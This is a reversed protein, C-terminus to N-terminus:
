RGRRPRMVTFTLVIGLRVNDFSLRARAAQSYIHVDVESCSGRSGHTYATSMGTPMLDWRAGSGEERQLIALARRDDGDDERLIAPHALSVGEAELEIALASPVNTRISRGLQLTNFATAERVDRLGLVGTLSATAPARVEPTNNLRLLGDYSARLPSVVYEGAAIGDPVHLRVTTGKGDADISDVHVYHVDASGAAFPADVKRLVVADGSEFAHVSDVLTGTASAQTTLDGTTKGTTIGALTVVRADAMEAYIDMTDSTDEGGHLGVRPGFVDLAARDSTYSASGDLVTNGFFGLHRHLDDALFELRLVEGGQHSFTVKRTTANYSVVIQAAADEGAALGAVRLADQLNAAARPVTFQGVPLAASYRRGAVEVTVDDTLTDGVRRYLFQADSVYGFTDGVTVTNLEPMVVRTISQPVLKPAEEPRCYGVTVGAAGFLSQALAADTFSITVPKSACSFHAQRVRVVGAREDIAAEFRAEAPLAAALTRMILLGLEVASVPPFWLTPTADTSNITAAATFATDSSWSSVVADEPALGSGLLRPTLPWAMQYYEGSSEGQGHRASSTLQWNATTTPEGSQIEIASLTAPVTLKYLAGDYEATVTTNTAVNTPAEWALTADAPVAPVVPPVSISDLSISHLEKGRIVAPLPIRITDAAVSKYRASSDSTVSVTISQEEMDM